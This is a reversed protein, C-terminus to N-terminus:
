RSADSPQVRRDVPEHDRSPCFHAAGGVSFNGGAIIRQAILGNQSTGGSLQTSSRDLIQPPHPRAPNGDQNRDAGRRARLSVICVGSKRRFISSVSWSNSRVRSGLIEQTQQLPKGQARERKNRGGAANTPSGTTAGVVPDAPVYAGPPPFTFRPPRALESNPPVAVAPSSFPPSASHAQSLLSTRHSAPPFPPASLPPVMRAPVIYNQPPLSEVPAYGDPFISLQQLPPGNSPPILGPLRSAHPSLPRPNSMSTEDPYHTHTIARLPVSPVRPSGLVATTALTAPPDHSGSLDDALTHVGQLDHQPVPYSPLQRHSTPPAFLSSDGISSGDDPDDAVSMAPPSEHDDSPM